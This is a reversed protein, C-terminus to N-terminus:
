KEKANEACVLSYLKDPFNITMGDVGSRYANEMDQLTRIGWARVSFGMDKLREVSEKSVDRVNPCIQYCKISRLREVAEDSLERILYGVRFGSMESIKKIIPFSFSTVITREELGYPQMAKVIREEIGDEKIEIALHVGKDKVFDLFEAFSIIKDPPFDGSRGIVNLRRLEAFSLGGVPGFGDTVRDLNDDHFLYLIGDSSIRVDTEIGNAKQEIGLEFASLTNEPAYESAGRHAYNIFLRGDAEYIDKFM